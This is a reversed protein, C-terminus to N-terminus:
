KRVPIKEGPEQMRGVLPIEEPTESPSGYYYGYYYHSYYYGLDSQRVKNLVSGIIDVGSRKLTEYARVILDRRTARAATVLLAADAHTALLLADTVSLVPPADLVLVDCMSKVKAFLRATRDSALMDLPNPPLPGSTIARLGPRSASM